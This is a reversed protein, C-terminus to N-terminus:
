SDNLDELKEKLGDHRHDVSWLPPLYQPRMTDLFHQRWTKEFELLKGAKRVKKVVEQGHSVFNSNERRTEMTAAETIMEPTLDSANFYEQVIQSLQQHRDPPLKAAAFNLAKAASKVKKLEPDEILRAVTANGLPADYKNALERRLKDDYFASMRHCEPCMLLVDHSHNAKIVLPFFRRYDHPVINKRMYSQDSGCVVCINDKFNLYYSDETGPRGSPEFKLQVTYPDLCTLKGIGRKIYWDAKKRDLTCLRSGDPAALMCNMYLPSKRGIGRKYPKLSNSIQTEADDKKKDNEKTPAKRKKDKFALDVVGQCLSSARQCFFSDQLLDIVEERTLYGEDEEYRSEWKSLDAMINYVDSEVDFMLGHSFDKFDKLAQGHNKSDSENGQAGFSGEQKDDFNVNNLDEQNSNEMCGEHEQIVESVSDNSTKSSPALDSVGDILTSNYVESGSTIDNHSLNKISEPVKSDTMGQNLGSASNGSANNEVCISDESIFATRLVKREEAKSKVLRLFMHSAVLADNMAYEIQRRDFQEAEWNSCRIRWSKDMTVGLIRKALADLSTKQNRSQVSSEVRCRQIVHRLDVCGQVTVGFMGCLRKADDKIGVGFKLISKDELIERVTQPLHGDMKCLRILFCDSLPTAIQLLAVPANTQGKKNVWECDMGLFNLKFPYKSRYSQLLKECSLASDVVFVRSTKAKRRTFNRDFTRWVHQAPGLLVIGLFWRLFILLSIGVTGIYSYLSLRKDEKSRALPRNRNIGTIEGANICLKANNRARTPGVNATSKASPEM